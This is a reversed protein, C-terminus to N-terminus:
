VLGFLDAGAIEKTQNSGFLATTFVGQSIQNWEESVTRQWLLMYEHTKKVTWSNTQKQCHLGSPQRDSEMRVCLM